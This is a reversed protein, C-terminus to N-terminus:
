VFSTSPTSSDVDVTITGTVPTETEVVLSCNPTPRAVATPFGTAASVHVRAIAIKPFILQLIRAHMRTHTHAREFHTHARAM